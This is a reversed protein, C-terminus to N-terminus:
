QVDFAWEGARMVPEVTEDPLHGDIDLNASGVMFDVHLLSHNGGAAKFDDDSLGEGGKYTFQYAKGLALHSAANEDFLTNYFLIGSQSIPTSHALLAVEGLRRAGDDTELMKQLIVEGKGAIAKVVKGGEFTLSFDEILTGAYSLPLSARVHGDARERHPLTFIEETPLNATFKIGNAATNQGSIWMHGEPLGIKLDTGPGRYRLYAYQKGNLYQSRKELQGLHTKWAQVPDPDKLRCVEFIAEWLREEQQESPVEPFVKRAWSPIPVSIVCWNAANRSILKFYEQSHKAATRQALTVLEPDQDKLLDPNEAYIALMADGSRAFDALVEAKWVPFEEFSDRPAHQFRALSVQDDGWMVDVLRAGAKYASAVALRVLPATEIPARVLVRQGARVNLGIQVILDAYKEFLQEFNDAM